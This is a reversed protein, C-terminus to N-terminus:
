TSHGGTMLCCHVNNAFYIIAVLFFITVTMLADIADFVELAGRLELLKVM